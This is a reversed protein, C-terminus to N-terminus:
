TIYWFLAQMETFLFSRGLFQYLNRQVISYDVILYFHFVYIMYIARSYDFVVILM